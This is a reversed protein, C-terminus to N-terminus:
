TETPAYIAMKNGDLDRFYAFTLPGGGRPGIDGEDSGGLELAKAQLTAVTAVNDVMLAVMVGNGVTAEEGDYPKIVGFMAKGAKESWLVLRENPRIQKLGLPEFVADYFAAARELDNTGVLTYGIMEVNGKKFVILDSTPHERGYGLDSPINLWSQQGGDQRGM